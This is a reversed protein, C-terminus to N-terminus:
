PKGQVCEFNTADNTSGSKKWRAVQPYPCLPRTRDAVGNTLHSGLIRDPAIGREVWQEIASITDFQDTAEAGGQCHMMGPVMFLRYFEEVERTRGGFREVVSQYYNISNEAAIQQDNWGHYQLLKGGRKKFATLDPDTATFQGGAKDIADAKAVDRDFDM